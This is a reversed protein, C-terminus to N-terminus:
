RFSVLNETIIYRHVTLVVHIDSFSCTFFFRSLYVATFVYILLIGIYIFQLEDLFM